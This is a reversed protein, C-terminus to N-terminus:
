IFSPLSQTIDYGNIANTDRLLYALFIHIYM